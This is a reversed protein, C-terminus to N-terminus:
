LFSATAGKSAGERRLARAAPLVSCSCLAMPIGMLAAWLIPRRGTGTLLATVRPFRALAVHIFGALAFGLLLYPASAYLIAIIGTLIEQM